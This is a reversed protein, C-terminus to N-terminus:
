AGIDATESTTRPACISALTHTVEAASPFGPKEQGRDAAMALDDLSVMGIVENNEDVVPLRRVKFAQMRQEVAVLADNMGCTQVHHTMVDDVRIGSLPLGKAYAGMCVDRDTLIGALKGGDDVVPIIGCDFDSMLQAARELTDNPGCCAVNRTMIREVIM